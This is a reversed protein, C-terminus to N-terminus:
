FYKRFTFVCKRMMLHPFRFRDIMWMTEREYEVLEDITQLERNMYFKTDWHDNYFDIDAESISSLYKTYLDYDFDILRVDDEDNFVINEGHIMGLSHVRSIIDKINKILRESTGYLEVYQNYTYKYAEMYIEDDISAYDM